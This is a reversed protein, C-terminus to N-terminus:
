CDFTRTFVTSSIKLRTDGITQAMGPEHLEVPALRVEDQEELASQGVYPLHPDLEFGRHPWAQKVAVTNKSPNGSRNTCGSVDAKELTMSTNGVITLSIFVAVIAFSALHIDM